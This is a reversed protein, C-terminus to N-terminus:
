FGYEPFNINRIGGSIWARAAMIAWAAPLLRLVQAQSTSSCCVCHSRYASVSALVDNLPGGATTSDGNAILWTFEVAAKDDPCVGGCVGGVGGEGHGAEDVEACLGSHPRCLTQMARAADDEWRM